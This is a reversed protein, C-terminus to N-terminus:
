IEKTMLVKTTSSNCDIPKFGFKEYTKIAAFNDVSTELWFGTIKPIDCNQLIDQYAIQIFEQSLGQGRAEGYIRIAFTYNYQSFGLLEKKGFWIIGLLNEDKDVLTFTIRGKKYWDNFSSRDKFRVPDSTFKLVSPDNHSYKILQNIQNESISNKVFVDTGIKM